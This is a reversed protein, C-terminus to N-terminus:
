IIGDLHMRNMLRQLRLIFNDVAQHVEISHTYVDSAVITQAAALANDMTNRAFSVDEDTWNRDSNNGHYTTVHMNESAFDLTLAIPRPYHADIYEEITRRVGPEVCGTSFRLFMSGIKSSKNFASSVRVSLSMLDGAVHHQMWVNHIQQLQQFPVAM